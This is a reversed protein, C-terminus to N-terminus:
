SPTGETSKPTLDYMEHIYATAGTAGVLFWFGYAFITKM